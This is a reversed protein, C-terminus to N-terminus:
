LILRGLVPQTAESDTVASTAVGGFKCIAGVVAGQAVELISKVASAM